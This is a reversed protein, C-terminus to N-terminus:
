PPKGLDFVLHRAQAVWPMRVLAIPGVDVGAAELAQLERAWRSFEPERGLAYYIELHANIVEWRVTPDTDAQQAKAWWPALRALATNLDRGARVECTSLLRALVDGGIGPSAALRAEIPGILEVVRDCREPRLSWIMSMLMQDRMALPMETNAQLASIAGEAAAVAREREGLNTYVFGAQHLVFQASAPPLDAALDVLADLQAKALAPQGEDVKALAISLDAQLCDLDANPQDGCVARRLVILEDSKMALSSLPLQNGLTELLLRLRRRADGDVVRAAEGMRARLPADGLQNLAGLAFGARLQTLITPHGAGLIPVQADITALLRQRWGSRGARAEPFYEALVNLAAYLPDDASFLPQMRARADRLAALFVDPERATSLGYTMANLEIILARIEFEAQLTPDDIPLATSAAPWTKRAREFRELVAQARLELSAIEAGLILAAVHLVPDSQLAPDRLLAEIARSAESVSEHEYALAIRRLEAQARAPANGLESAVRAAAAFSDIAARDDGIQAQALAVTYQVPLRIAAPLDKIQAPAARLVDRFAVEPKGALAPNGAAFVRALAAQTGRADALAAEARDRERSASLGFHLSLAAGALLSFAALALAGVLRPQRRTYLWLRRWAGPKRARIPEHALVRRLDDAYAGASGYRLGPERALATGIVTDLDGRLSPDLRALPLPTDQGIVRLAELPTLGSVPLPLRDALLEYGIVGLAYVDSRADATALGAAQEPSMYAPTGMLMGTQTLTSSVGLEQSIGFDLVKPEGAATVLINSPKLDRHVIGRAHAHEVADAIQTLLEIRRTRPLPAAFTALDVGAVYEMVLYPHGVADVGAEIVRAIGPHSLRALLEAERVFRARLGPESTISLRKIAVQRRPATQEALYVVGMGGRGLERLVRYRGIEPPLASTASAPDFSGEDGDDGDDGADAVMLRLAARMDADSIQLDLWATRKAAPLAMAQELLPRLERWRQRILSRVMPDTSPAM